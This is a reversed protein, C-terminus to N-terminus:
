RHYFDPWLGWIPHRVGLYVPRSGTPWLMFNIKIQLWATVSVLVLLLQWSCFLGRTVSPAWCWSIRLQRVIIIQNHAGSTHRVGLCVLRTVMPRLMVEVKIKGIRHGNLQSGASEACAQLCFIETHRTYINGLVSCHCLTCLTWLSRFATVARIYEYHFQWTVFTTDVCFSQGKWQQFPPGM